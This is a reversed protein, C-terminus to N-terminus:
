AYVEKGNKFSVAIDLERLTWTYNTLITILKDRDYTLTYNTTNLQKMDKIICQLALLEKQYQNIEAIKNSNKKM